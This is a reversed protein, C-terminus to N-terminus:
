KMVAKIKDKMIKRKMRLLLHRQEAPSLGMSKELIALSYEVGHSFAKDLDEATYLHSPKNDM